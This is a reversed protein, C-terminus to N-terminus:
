VSWKYVRTGSAAAVYRGDPSYAVSDIPDDWVDSALPFEEGDRLGFLCVRGNESASIAFKGNSSVAIQNVRQDHMRYAARVRGTQLEWIRIKGREDGTIAYQSDPTFASATTECSHIGYKGIRKEQRPDIVHIYDDACIIASLQDPAYGLCKIDTKSIRVSSIEGRLNSLEGIVHEPKDSFTYATDTEDEVVAEVPAEEEVLEKERVPALGVDTALDIDELSPASSDYASDVPKPETKVSRLPIDEESEDALRMSDIDPLGDEYTDALVEITDIEPIQEEPQPVRVKTSCKPCPLEKGALTEKAKLKVGCQCQIVIPM